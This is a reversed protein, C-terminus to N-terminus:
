DGSVNVSVGFLYGSDTGMTLHAPEGTRTRVSPATILRGEDFFQLTVFALSDELDTLTVDVSLARHPGGFSVRESQGEELSVAFDWTSPTARDAGDAQIWGDIDLRVPDAQAALTASLCAAAVTALLTKTGLKSPAASGNDFYAM